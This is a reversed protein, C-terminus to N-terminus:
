GGAPLVDVLQRLDTVTVTPTTGAVRDDGDRMRLSRADGAFLATRFGVKQAPTCDNLLDNGVYLVGGPTVGHYEDLMAAAHEYLHTGPKARHHRYSWAQVNPDFGFDRVSRGLLPPFLLPTFFQANSVIGLVFRGALVDLVEAAHPMTWTPNVRMEYEVAARHSMGVPVARSPVVGLAILADVWVQEIRVEPYETGFRERLGAHRARIAGTLADVGEAGDRGDAWGFGAARVAEVFADGRGAAANVGVDGSGSILLTGYVDFLVAKVGHQPPLHPQVGTPVPELSRALRRIEEHFM